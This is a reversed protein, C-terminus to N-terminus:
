ESDLYSDIVQTEHDIKKKRNDRIITSLKKNFIIMNDNIIEDYLCDVEELANLQIDLWNNFQSQIVKVNHTKSKISFMKEKVILEQVVEKVRTKTVRKMDDQKETNNNNNSKIVKNEEQPTDSGIETSTDGSSKKPLLNGYESITYFNFNTKGIKTKRIYGNNELCVIARDLQKKDWGLRNLYLKRSFDFDDKDSLIEILLLKANSTINKDRTIKSINSPHYERRIKKNNFLDLKKQNSTNGGKEKKM